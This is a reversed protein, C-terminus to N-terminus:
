NTFLVHESDTLNCLM